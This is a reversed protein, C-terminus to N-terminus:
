RHIAYIDKRGGFPRYRVFPAAADKGRALGATTLLYGNVVGPVRRVLGLTVLRDLCNRLGRDTREALKPDADFTARCILQDPDWRYCAALVQRQFVTLRPGRRPKSAFRASLVRSKAM